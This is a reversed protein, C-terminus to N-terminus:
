DITNFNVTLVFIRVYQLYIDFNLNVAIQTSILYKVKLNMVTIENRTHMANLLGFHRTKEKENKSKILNRCAM